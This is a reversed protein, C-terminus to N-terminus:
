WSTWRTRSVAATSSRSATAMGILSKAKNRFFGTSKIM